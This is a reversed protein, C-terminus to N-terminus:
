VALIQQWLKYVNYYFCFFAVRKYNSNFLFIMFVNTLDFLSRTGKNGLSFSLRSGVFINEWLKQEPKEAAM